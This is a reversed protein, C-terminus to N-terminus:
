GIVTLGCRTGDRGQQQGSGGHEGGQRVAEALVTLTKVWWGVTMSPASDVAPM